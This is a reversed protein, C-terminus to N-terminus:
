SKPKVIADNQTIGSIVETWENNKSGIEIQKEEGNGLVVFNGKSLYSSPIVLVNKRKGTEINAQLQTGSFMKEPLVEFQAEVIYSQEVEDFGPHIKTVKATFSDDPYTNLNVAVKSGINVKTIDDESVFLKIIYAGSGINAIAEGKRVLEGEKKYIKIVQGSAKTILKYDDLLSSQTNVQVLSRQVNLELTSQVELYNEELAALNQQAAKYQLETKEFDLKSVSKKEWLDKYRLYNAKDFAVQEKAQKIQLQLNQLQPADPATNNLADEYVVKADQLQNNQVDNEVFAVLENKTLIDGVKVPISKIIGEVKSSVTYNHEQEIFGSAFVADEINKRVPQTTEEQSCSTFLFVLGLLYIPFSKKIISM